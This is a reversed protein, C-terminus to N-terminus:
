TLKTSESTACNCYERALTAAREYSECAKPTNTGLQVVWFGISEIILGCLNGSQDIVHFEKPGTQNIDIMTTEAYKSFLVNASNSPRVWLIPIPWWSRM